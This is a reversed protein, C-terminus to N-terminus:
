ARPRVGLGPEAPLHMRGREFRMGEFPDDGILAAGDLDAWDVLPSLHAAATILISSELMCGLMIRLGHARACGIMKLAHRVGGCKVLKINIADFLGVCRPIDSLRECSEDAMLPLPSNQRLWRQGEVEHPPLPQEVFEVGYEVLKEMLQLAKHPQWGCNADVRLTADPAEQRVIELCEMDSPGGVKIKLIPYDKVERVKARVEEPSAIGITFSSLPTAAADLGLLAHLPQGCLKGALDYLACDIAAKVSYNLALAGDLERMLNEAQWPGAAREVVPRITELAALVTARNEGYIQFPAAEGWGVVGAHELRVIVNEFVDGAVEKVAIKFAHRPHLDVPEFSMKM